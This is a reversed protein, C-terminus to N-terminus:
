ISIIRSYVDRSRQLGLGWKRRETVCRKEVSGIFGKGIVKLDGCDLYKTIQM